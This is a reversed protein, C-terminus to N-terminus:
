GQDPRIELAQGIVAAPGVLGPRDVAPHLSEGPRGPLLSAIAVLEVRLRLKGVKFYAAAGNRHTARVRRRLHVVVSTRSVIRAAGTTHHAVCSSPSGSM